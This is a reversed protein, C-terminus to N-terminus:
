AAVEINEISVTEQEYREKAKDCNTTFMENAQEDAEELGLADVEITKTVTARITVKYKAM